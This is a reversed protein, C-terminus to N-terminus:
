DLQRVTLTVYGRNNAYFAFADNAYAHFYGSRQATYDCGTGIRFAEHPEPNGQREGRGNAIAGTLCFWPWDDHRRSARFEAHPNGTLERFAAEFRGVVNAGIHALEAISFKGDETGAPGCVISGDVWQGRAEFRYRRGAELWLGTPNWPERAYIEIARGDPTLHPQRYPCQTIPPKRLRDLASRHFHQEELLSPISRPQTELLAFVGTRPDHLMDHYDPRVQEVMGDNFALGAAKAEGIMWALAGDSLGCERYGGGVDSHVGPFWLQQVDADPAVDTWLTPAFTKRQEDMALAHRATQVNGSLSTSHFMHDKPDDVLDLWGMDDPIGLAGVTDWVGLFRVPISEGAANHFRAQGIRERLPGIPKGERYGDEFLREIADWSGAPADEGVRLLGCCNIFGVLSRVTYAGRSFGFLYLQDGPEYSRCLWEYASLINRSLGTGTGGGLMKDLKSGGAGVGPHYYVRQTNDSALANAMRVVNTPAAVGGDMQDRSNWTGDCCVVLRRM